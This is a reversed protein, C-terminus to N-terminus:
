ICYFVVMCGKCFDDALGRVLCEYCCVAGFGQCLDQSVSFLFGQFKKVDKDKAVKWLM